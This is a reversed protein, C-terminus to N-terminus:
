DNWDEMIWNMLEIFSDFCYMDYTGDDETKIIKNM